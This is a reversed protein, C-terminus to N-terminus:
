SGVNATGSAGSGANVSGSQGVLSGGTPAAPAAPTSPAAPAAPQNATGGGSAAPSSFYWVIGGLAALGVGAGIAMKTNKTM